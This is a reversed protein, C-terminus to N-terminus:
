QIYSASTTIEEPLRHNKLLFMGQSDTYTVNLPQSDDEDRSQAYSQIEALQGIGVM